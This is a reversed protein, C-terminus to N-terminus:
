VGRLRTQDVVEAVIPDAEEAFFQKLAEGAPGTRVAQEFTPDVFRAANVAEAVQRAGEQVGTVLGEGRGRRRQTVALLVGGLLGSGTLASVLIANTSSLLDFVVGRQQAADARLKEALTRQEAAAQRAQVAAEALVPRVDQGTQVTAWIRAQWAEPLLAIAAANVPHSVWALAEEATGDFGLVVEAGREIQDAAADHVGAQRELDACGGVFLGLLGLAAIIAIKWMILNGRM